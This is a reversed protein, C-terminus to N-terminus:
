TTIVIDTCTYEEPFRDPAHYTGNSCFMDTGNTVKKPSLPVSDQETRQDEVKEQEKELDSLFVGNEETGDVNPSCEEEAVVMVDSFFCVFLVVLLLLWSVFRKTGM